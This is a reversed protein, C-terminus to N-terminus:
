YKRTRLSRSPFAFKPGLEAQPCRSILGAKYFAM